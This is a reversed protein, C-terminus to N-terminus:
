MGLPVTGRNPDDWKPKLQSYLWAASDYDGVYFMLYTRPILQGQQNVYGAQQLSQLTPWVATSRPSTNSPGIDNARSTVSNVLQLPAVAFWPTFGAVHIM